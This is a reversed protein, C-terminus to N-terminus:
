EVIHDGGYKRITREYRTLALHCEGCFWHQKPVRYEEDNLFMVGGCNPCLKESM